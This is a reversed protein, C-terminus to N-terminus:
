KLKLLKLGEPFYYAMLQDNGLLYRANNDGSTTQVLKWTKEHDLSVFYFDTSIEDSKYGILLTCTPNTYREKIYYNKKEHQFYHDPIKYRSANFYKQKTTEIEVSDTIAIFKQGQNISFLLKGEVECILTDHGLYAQNLSGRLGAPFKLQTWKNGGDSTMYMEPKYLLSDGTTDPNVIWSYGGILGRNANEFYIVESISKAESDIGTGAITKWKSEDCSALIM